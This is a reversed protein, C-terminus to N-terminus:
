KVEQFLLPRLLARLRTRAVHLRSKVTGPAIGL